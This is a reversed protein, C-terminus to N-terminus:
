FLHGTKKKILLLAGVVGAAGLVVGGAACLVITLASGLSTGSDSAEANEPSGANNQPVNELNADANVDGNAGEGNTDYPNFIIEEPLPSYNGSGDVNPITFNPMDSGGGSNGPNANDPLKEKGNHIMFTYTTESKEEGNDYVSSVVVKTVDGTLKFLYSKGNVIQAGNMSMKVNDLENQGLNAAYSYATLWVEKCNYKLYVDYNYVDSYFGNALNFFGLECAHKFLDELTHDGITSEGKSKIMLGLILAAMADSDESKVVTYADEPTPSVKYNMKIVAAYYSGDLHKVDEETYNKIDQNKIKYGQQEAIMIKYQMIIEKSTYTDPIEYGNKELLNKITEIAYDEISTVSDPLEEGLVNAVVITIARDITTGQPIVVPKGTIPSIIDYKLCAYVIATYVPTKTTEGNPYIIGHENILYEKMKTYEELLGTESIMNYLKNIVDNFKATLSDLSINCIKKLADVETKFGGLTRSYKGDAKPVMEKKSLDTSSERVYFGSLWAPNKESTSDATKAFANFVGAVSLTILVAALFVSIIKKSKM